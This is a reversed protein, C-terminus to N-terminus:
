VQVQTPTKKGVINKFSRRHVSSQPILIAAFMRLFIFSIKSSNHFTKKSFLSERKPFQLPFIACCIKVEADTISKEKDEYDMYQNELHEEETQPMQQLEERTKFDL